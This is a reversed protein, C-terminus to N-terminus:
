YHIAMTQLPHIRTSAPSDPEPIVTPRRQSLMSNEADRILTHIEFGSLLVSRRMTSLPYVNVKTELHKLNIIIAQLIDVQIMVPSQSRTCSPMLGSIGRARCKIPPFHWLFLQQAELWARRRM